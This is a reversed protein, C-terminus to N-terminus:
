NGRSGLTLQVEKQKNNRIITLTITDGPQKNKFIYSVLDGYVHVPNGDVAIIIDGGSYFGQISTPKDGAVLGAKDAPGGPTLSTVYAGTTQTDSVARWEALTLDTTTSSIGLYPYDYSGKDILSPLVRKVINISVAYGIGTNIADGSNTYGSTQIARNIGVVQGNLDLLPGGSNGPNILTDTQITDGAAYATVQDSGTRISDLVRGKASIIGMTMTSNLRFPNGIAVVVQGVQLKDSDGLTLPHLDAAAADVKIVAIDSDLDTGIVEGDVKLGSPFDVEVATAGEVVHYNTIIHGQLDYVFGSGSGEGQDTQAVISVVGPNIQQYLNTLVADMATIDGPNVIVQPAATSSIVPQSTAAAPANTTLTSLGPIFSCAALVLLTFVSLIITLKKNM